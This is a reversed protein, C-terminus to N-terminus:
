SRTARLPGRTSLQTADPAAHADSLRYAAWMRERAAETMVGSASELRLCRCGGDDVDAAAPWDYPLGSGSGRSAAPTWLLVALLWAGMVAVALLWPFRLKAM